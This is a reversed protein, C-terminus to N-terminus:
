QVLPNVASDHAHNLQARMDQGDNEAGTKDVSREHLAAGHMQNKQQHHIGNDLWNQSFTM